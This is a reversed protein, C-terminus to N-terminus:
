RDEEVYGSNEAKRRWKRAEALDQRVGGLGKEFFDALRGQAFFDGRKAALRYWKFAEAYDQAVGHGNEYCDGLWCQAREDGNGAAKSFWKFAEAYDQEVPHGEYYCLALAFQGDPYGNSASKRYWNFSEECSQQVGHGFKYCGGLDYQAEADGNDAALRYWKAAEAYDQGVGEGHYHCRGINCQAEAHGQEAAKRYWEAAKVADEQIGQGFDYCCGLDYQGDAHGQEAAKRYWKAAEKDDQAVVSGRLYYGALLYQAEPDGEKAGFSIAKFDALSDAPVDEKVKTRAHRGAELGPMGEICRGSGPPNLRIRERIMAVLEAAREMGFGLGSLQAGEFGLLDYVPIWSEGVLLDIEPNLVYCGRATRAFLRRNGPGDRYIENKALVSLVYQRERRYGPLIEKPLDEIRSVFDDVTFEPSGYADALAQLLSLAMNLLLFEMSDSDIKELRGGSRAKIFAPEVAMYVRSLRLSSRGKSKFAQLLAIRLPTRGCNDVLELSSGDEVLREALEAMGLHAAVMLPTQNFQNRFDVGYAALKSDLSRLGKEYYDAHIRRLTADRDQEPNSARKFGHEVLPGFVQPAECVIGYDYLLQKAKKNFSAPDLAEKAVVSKLIERTVVQWPPSKMGLMSSRILGAQEHRGQLDLRQAERRWEEASSVKAEFAAGVSSSSLGLLRLLPHGSDREVLHLSEMGRTLAVYLSNVFFKYAELSKDSKDKARSYGLAEVELDQLSVGDCIEAFEQRADSVLNYLIANAYELGKAERVSFLLPTHFHRRAEEKSEERLVLVACDVSRATARDLAALSKPDDSLLRVSGKAESACEVLYSGERDASGFRVHKVKLLRNALDTVELSNRYNNRLVRIIERPRGEREAHFMSRVASWSFHNPHVIQNSDGCLVFGDPDKLTSLILKLKANTLDQVEDVVAFDYVAQAHALNAHAAMNSDYLGSGELHELYKLFHGYVHERDEAPFISQRVGLALYEDLSLKGSDTATGTLVGDFEEYLKHADKVRCSQRRRSFWASFDEFSAERGAPTRITELLEKFSLFDPEQSGNAYGGSRYLSRSREVLYPSRTVYLVRGQLLKLKELTLATKGSGAPGIIVAPPKLHCAELQADDFSLAKELYHFRTSKPNIYAMRQVDEPPPGKAMDFPEFKGEDIAAGNLFRSKAYDHNWILELLLICTDGGHRAFKFLLRNSDDLRARYFSTGVLKKADAARFDGASLFGAAKEVEENLDGAHLGEYTLIRTM